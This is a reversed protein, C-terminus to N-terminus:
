VGPGLASLILGPLMEVAADMARELVVAEPSLDPDIANLWEVPHYRALSSLGLLAAWWTMLVSPAPDDACVAPRLWRRGIADEHAPRPDSGDPPAAWRVVIGPGDPTDQVQVAKDAHSVPSGPYHRLLWTLDPPKITVPPGVAVMVIYGYSAMEELVPHLGRPRMPWLPLARPFEDGIGELVAIEPITALLRGISVASSLGESDTVEAVAQFQGRGRPGVSWSLAGKRGPQPALGHSNPAQPDDGRAALIARGAQSLAYYLPLPRSVYGLGAAAGMLQEAQELAARYLSSRSEDTGALGPLRARSARIRYWAPISM